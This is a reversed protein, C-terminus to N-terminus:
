DEPDLLSGLFCGAVVLLCQQKSEMWIDSYSM